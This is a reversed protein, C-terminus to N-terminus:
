KNIAYSGNASAVIDGNELRAIARTQVIRLGHHDCIGEVILTDGQQVSKVFNVSMQITPTFAAEGSVFAICGMAIDLATCIMGGHMTGAPNLQWSEVPFSLLVVKKAVDCSIMQMRMMANIKGVEKLRRELFLVIRERFEVDKM